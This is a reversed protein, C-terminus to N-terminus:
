FQDESKSQMNMLFNRHALLVLLHADKSLVELAQQIGGQMNKLVGKNAFCIALGELGILNKWSLKAFVQQVNQSTIEKEKMTVVIQDYDAM